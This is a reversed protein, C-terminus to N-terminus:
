KRDTLRKCIIVTKIDSLYMNIDDPNEEKSTGGNIIGEDLLVRMEPKAWAPLEDFSKIFRDDLETLIEDRTMYDDEKFTNYYTNGAKNEIGLLPCPNVAVNGRRVEFHCHSGYSYGTNGEIGLPDGEKVKQGVSVLRKKMHCMFVRYGDETDLRVYNGWEWTKNSHDTIITSTTITGDAPARITKDDRGVLDVGAHYVKAGNLDRIGFPSSVYVNGEYPLKM